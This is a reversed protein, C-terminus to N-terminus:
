FVYNNKKFNNLVQSCKELKEQCSLIISQDQFKRQNGSKLFDIAEKQCTAYDMFLNIIVRIKEERTYMNYRM